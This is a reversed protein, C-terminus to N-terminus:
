QKITKFYKSMVPNNLIEAKYRGGTFLWLLINLPWTFHEKVKAENVVFAGKKSLRKPMSVCSRGKDRVLIGMNELEKLSYFVNSRKSTWSCEFTEFTEIRNKKIVQRLQETTSLNKEEIDPFLSCLILPLRTKEQNYLIDSFKKLDELAKREPRYKGLLQIEEDICNNMVDRLTKKLDPANKELFNDLIKGKSNRM